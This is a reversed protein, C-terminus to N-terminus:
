TRLFVRHLVELACPLSISADVVQLQAVHRGCYREAFRRGPLGSRQHRDAAIVIRDPHALFGHCDGRLHQLLMRAVRRRQACARDCAAVKGGGLGIIIVYALREVVVFAADAVILRQHDDIRAVGDRPVVQRASVVALALPEADDTADVVRSLLILHREIDLLM